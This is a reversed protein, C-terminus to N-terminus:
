RITEYGYWEVVRGDVQDKIKKDKYEIQIQVVTFRFWQKSIVLWFPLDKQLQYHSSHNCSGNIGRTLAFPL